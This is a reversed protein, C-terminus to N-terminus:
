REAALLSAAQEESIDSWRRYASAVAFPYGSRLNACCVRDVEEAVRRCAELHGTPVAVVIGRAGAKQLAAVATLLTFGSALGDDVLVASRGSMEPLGGGGMLRRVRAAVKKRTAAIGAEIEEEGLGLRPLLERNLRVTGDWAVAGYGAETNWPLLIKSVVAAALPWGLEEAVVTAVPVGGAPVALLVPEALEQGALLRALVRGAEERDAFVQTREELEPLRFINPPIKM